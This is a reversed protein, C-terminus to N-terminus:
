QMPTPVAAAPDVEDTGDNGGNTSPVERSDTPAQVSASPSSETPQGGITDVNESKAKESGDSKRKPRM